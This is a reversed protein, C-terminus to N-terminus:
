DEKGSRSISDKNGMAGVANYFTCCVCNESCEGAVTFLPPCASACIGLRGCPQHSCDNVKKKCCKCGTTGMCPGDQYETQRCIKRCTGNGGCTGECRQCCRCQSSGMCTGIQTEWLFNCFKRCQGNEGCTGRCQVCCGCESPDAGCRTIRISNETSSCGSKCTGDYTCTGNCPCASTPLICTCGGYSGAGLCLADDYCPFFWKFWSPLCWGGRERCVDSQKCCEAVSDDFNAVDEPSTIGFYNAVETLGRHNGTTLAPIEEIKSGHHINANGKKNIHAIMVEESCYDPLLAQALADQQQGFLIIGACIIPLRRLM